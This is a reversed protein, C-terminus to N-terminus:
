SKEDLRQMLKSLRGHLTTTRQLIEWDRSVDWFYDMLPQNKAPLEVFQRFFILLIGKKRLSIDSIISKDTGLCSTRTM